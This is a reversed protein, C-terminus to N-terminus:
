KIPILHERMNAAVKSPITVVEGPSYTKGTTTCNYNCKLKYKKGTPKPGAAQAAPEPEPESDDEEDEEDAPPPETDANDPDADPDADVALEAEKAEIAEELQAITLDKGDEDEIALELELAREQLLEKKTAM